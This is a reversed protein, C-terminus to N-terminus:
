ADVIKAGVDSLSRMVIRKETETNDEDDPDVRVDAVTKLIELDGLFDSWLKSSTSGILQLTEPDTLDLAFKGSLFEDETVGPIAGAPVKRFIVEATGEEYKFVVDKITLDFTQEFGRSDILDVVEAKKLM